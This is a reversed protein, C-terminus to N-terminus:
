QICGITEPDVQNDCGDHLQKPPLRLGPYYGRMSSGAFQPAENLNTTVALATALTLRLAEVEERVSAM